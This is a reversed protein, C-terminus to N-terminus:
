TFRWACYGLIALLTVAAMIMWRFFIPIGGLIPWNAGFSTDPVTPVPESEILYGGEKLIERARVVDKRRVQVPVGGMAVSYLPYSQVTLENPVTCAIGEAELRSRLVPVETAYNFTHVTVWENDTLYQRSRREEFEGPAIERFTRDADFVLANTNLNFSFAVHSDSNIHFADAHGQLVAGTQQTFFLGDIRADCELNEEWGDSSFRYINTGAGALIADPHQAVILSNIIPNEPLAQILARSQLSILYGWGGAVVVAVTGQPHLATGTFLGFGTGCAAVWHQDGEQFLFYTKPESDRFFVVPEHAAPPHNLVSIKM